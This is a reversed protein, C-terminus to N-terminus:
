STSCMVRLSPTPLELRGTPKWSQHLIRPYAGDDELGPEAYEGRVDFEARAAEIAEGAKLRSGPDFEEFVHAYTDLTVTLSNGMQRAVEAVSYGENILLSAFSHRLDYPVSETLGAAEATPKFVRSRWNRWDWDTWLSGRPTPFVLAEEDPKGTKERWQQLDRVLPPLLRVTRIKGTKTAKIVKGAAAREVRITREGVDGWRLARAEEPRIGSYALVAILTADRLQEADILASRMAEVSSPTFPRVHRQRKVQPLRVERVPNRDVRDWTVACRFVSSLFALGKHVTPVGVGRGLLKAKLEAITAPTVDRLRYGGVRRRLHKEWVRGYADRTNPQLEVMAYQRWWREVFEALTEKGRDLDLPEGLERAQRVKLEFREADAKRM